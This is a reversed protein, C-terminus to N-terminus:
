ASLQDSGCKAKITTLPTRFEHSTMSVFRSKLENLEHERALKKEMEDKTRKALTIDRIFATFSHVEGRLIPIISLESVEGSKANRNTRQNLLALAFSTKLYKKM